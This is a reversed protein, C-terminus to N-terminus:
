RKAHTQTQGTGRRDKEVANSDAEMEELWREMNIEMVNAYEREQEQGEDVEKIVEM